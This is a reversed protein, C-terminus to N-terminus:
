VFPQWMVPVMAYGDGDRAIHGTAPFPAHYFAVQMRESAALDLLRRRTARARDADMDFVASWDPHRVFLAPHNTTDSMAMLRGGGSTIAFATHGPTHGDAQVAVVGPAVEKDWAFRTVDKAVPGFVRRVNQFGPKAADPARAMNADDMWYAWEAEPVALEARPFVATGDKLRAGSIHDGHFHSFVVLDVSAPDFGAARFNSMWTGTTPAGSDGNGADILVLKGGTQLVLTTFSIAVRDQPLFADALAQRVAETPANRIFGDLPRTAIGDNVATVVVDGVKYRYFAPAQAGTRAGQPASQAPQAGVGAPSLAAALGAGAPAAFATRRTIPM